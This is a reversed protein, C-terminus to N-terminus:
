LSKLLSDAALDTPLNKTRFSDLVKETNLIQKKIKSQDELFSSVLKFIEKSNCKSQLLEPIIMQDAAINLINAYKIKVLMKVILFNIFNMKYIIISPIKKKSIELSITGSKSVAFISKKLIHDKIKEDSIIEINSIQSKNLFKELSSKQSKTSHFVYTFDEYKKNMLKIFELIIPTLINIESERSGPFVSIIAKNKKIIHNLEIKAEKNDELLPHGVFECSMNEKEWYKKEFKFLLLIHDIYKKIKKVRGERWVWVQPAVFHITKIDPSNRKVKEAVRLTFDPSDVSFLIDPNFDLIKQTTENIKNKIKFINLIVRTFGLYTVEKLDAISNIGISKLEDGGLCLYSINPEKIKLKSIVKAALKDGSPEGTLIFIKKM